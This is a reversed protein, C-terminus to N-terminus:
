RKAYQSFWDHVSGAGYFHQGFQLPGFDPGFGTAGGGSGSDYSYPMPSYTNEPYAGNPDNHFVPDNFAFAYPSFQMSASALPDVQHFRGLAADYGRFM